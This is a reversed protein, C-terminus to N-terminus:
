LKELLRAAESPKRIELWILHPYEPSTRLQAYRNRRGHHTSIVWWLISDRTLFARWFSEKNGSYLPEKTLARRFTRGLARGFVTAFSYNLWIVSTARPWVIDRVVQYNGDVIWRDDAIATRVLTRFQEAPREVWNPLWHLADLEIHQCELRQALEKALTTKGCCSTGIVVVRQYSGSLLAM